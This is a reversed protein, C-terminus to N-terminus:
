SQPRSEIFSKYASEAESYTMYILGNVAFGTGDSQFGFPFTSFEPINLQNPISPFKANKPFVKVKIWAEGESEIESATHIMYVNLCLVNSAVIEYEKRIVSYSGVVPKEVSELIEEDSIEFVNEPFQPMYMIRFVGELGDTLAYSIKFVPISIGNDYVKSWVVHRRSVRYGDTGEYRSDAFGFLEDRFVTDSSYGVRSSPVLGDLNILLKDAIEKSYEFMAKESSVDAKVSLWEDMSAYKALYGGVNEDYSIIDALIDTGAYYRVHINGEESSVYEDGIYNETIVTRKYELEISTGKLELTRVQEANADLYWVPSVADNRMFVYYPHMTDYIRSKNSQTSYFRGTVFFETEGAHSDVSIPTKEGDIMEGTQEKKSTLVPNITSVSNRDLCSTMLLVILCVVGALIKKM